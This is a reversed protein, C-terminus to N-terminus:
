MGTKKLCTYYVRVWRSNCLKTYSGDEEEAVCDYAWQTQGGHLCSDREPRRFLKPPIRVQCNSRKQSTYCKNRINDQVLLKATCLDDKDDPITCCTCPKSSLCKRNKDVCYNSWSRALIYDMSLGISVYQNEACSLNITIPDPENYDRNMNTLWYTYNGKCSERNGNPDKCDFSANVPFCGDVHLGQAECLYICVIVFITPLFFNINM